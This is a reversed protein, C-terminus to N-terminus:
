AANHLITYVEGPMPLRAAVAAVAEVAAVNHEPDAEVADVAPTGYLVNELATMQADTFDTSKIEVTSTQEVGAIGTVPVPTSAYDWSMEEPEVNETKTAHSRSSPQVKCNYVLHLKYGAAEDTDTGIETRYCLGFATRRQGGFVLGNMNSPSKMGNCAYFEDPFMYAKINGKHNEPTLLNVTDLIIQLSDSRLADLVREAREPTHVIHRCVPEIAFTVGEEEARRVVPEVRRIFLRLAEDTWCAPETKYGTNPAGTETGVTLAGMWRAFRLHAFYIELNRRYAEEDPTALNLYCGLVACTMGRSELAERVESALAETLLQPADGMAFGPVAKQMALHVCAFGQAKANDLREALTNGATDHLRIGINM